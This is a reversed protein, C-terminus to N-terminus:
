KASSNLTYNMKKKIAPQNSINTIRCCFAKKAMRGYRIASSVIGFLIAKKTILRTTTNVSALRQSPVLGSLPHGEKTYFVALSQGETLNGFALDILAEQRERGFVWPTPFPPQPDTPLPQLLKQDIEKQSRRLMWNFPVAVASFPPVALLRKVMNGHTAVCNKNQRYPHDFERIWQNPSMFFGSESKCPPLENVSLKEFSKGAFNEEDDTKSERIRGLATCFSNLGPQMCVNGNWQSDHWAVRVTLHSLPKM